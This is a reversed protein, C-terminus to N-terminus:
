RAEEEAQIMRKGFRCKAPCERCVDVDGGSKYCMGRRVIEPPLKEIKPVGPGYPVYLEATYGDTARASPCAIDDVRMRHPDEHRAM